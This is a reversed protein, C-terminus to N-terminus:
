KAEQGEYMARFTAAAKEIANHQQVLTSNIQNLLLTEKAEQHGQKRIVILRKYEHAAVEKYDKLVKIVTSQFDDDGNFDGMDTVKTLTSNLHIIWNQRVKEAKSYDASTMAENMAEMDPVSENIAAMLKENYELPNQCTNKCGLISFIVIVVLLASAPIPRLNKM